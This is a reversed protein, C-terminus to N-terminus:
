IANELEQMFKRGVKCREYIKDVENEDWPIEFEILKESLPIDEYRMSSRIYDVLQMFNPDSEPDINGWDWKKRNIEDEIFKSPTSVLEYALNSKRANSLAQYGLLQYRYDKNLPKHFNAWFTFIDWSSKIDIIEEAEKISEGTYLDPTGTIFENELKDVNKKFFKKKQLSYQTIAAEEVALMKQIYKYIIEHDRGYRERIWCELLHAKATEGLGGGSRGDTILKGLSSCRFKYNSFDNKPM